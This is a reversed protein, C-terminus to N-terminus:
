LLTGQVNAPPRKGVGDSGNVISGPEVPDILHSGTMRANNVETSVARLTLLSAPAPVLLDALSGVDEDSRGLWRDWVRPSLIVPMRDHLSSMLDNADTTLITVSRMLQSGDADPGRWEEWLGAFALPEGDGRSLYYPQKVKQGSVKKWEYFGDAPVICRRKRFAWKFANKEALGESRANIMRSGISPDKAWRPVLGWHFADLRRRCDEEAVVYVDATPAVNFNPELVDEAVDVVDFYRAIEDPPSASVFRGCV